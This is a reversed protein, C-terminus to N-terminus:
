TGLYGEGDLYDRLVGRIGESGRFRARVHREMLWLLGAFMIPDGTSFEKHISNQPGMSQIGAFIAATYRRHIEELLEDISASSLDIM